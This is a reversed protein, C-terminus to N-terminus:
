KTERVQRSRFKDAPAVFYETLGLIHNQSGLPFDTARLTSDCLLECLAVPFVTNTGFPHVMIETVKNTLSVPIALLPGGIFPHYTIYPFLTHSNRKKM